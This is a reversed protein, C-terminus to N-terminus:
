RAAQGEIVYPRQGGGPQALQGVGPPALQHVCLQVLGGARM